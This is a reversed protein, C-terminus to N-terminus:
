SDTGERVMLSAPFLPRLCNFRPITFADGVGQYVGVIGVNRLGSKMM